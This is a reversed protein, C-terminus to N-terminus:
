NPRIPMKFTIILRLLCRSFSDAWHGNLIHNLSIPRYYHEGWTLVPHSPCWTWRLLVALRVNRDTTICFLSINPITTWTKVTQSKAYVYDVHPPLFKTDLFRIIANQSTPCHDFVAFYCQHMKTTHIFSQHAHYRPFLTGKVTTAYEKTDKIPRIAINPCHTPPHLVTFRELFSWSRCTVFPIYQRLLIAITQSLYKQPSSHHRIFFSFASLSTLLTSYCLSYLLNPTTHMYPRILLPWLQKDRKKTVLLGVEVETTPRPTVLM